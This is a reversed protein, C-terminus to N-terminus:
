RIRKQVGLQGRISFITNRDGEKLWSICSRQLWTMEEWYLLEDMQTQIKEMDVGVEKPDKEHLEEQEKCLRKLESTVASFKEKSWTKLASMVGKLKGAIDGLNGAQAGIGWAHKIEGPLTEEREWM